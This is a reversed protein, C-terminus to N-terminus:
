ESGFGECRQVGPRQRYTGECSAPLHGRTHNFPLGSRVPGKRDRTGIWDWGATRRSHASSQETNRATDTDEIRLVFTGGTHRAYLWNFLATRVSRYPYIPPARRLDSKPLEDHASFHCRRVRACAAIGRRILLHGTTVPALTHPRGPLALLLTFWTLIFGTYYYTLAKRRAPSTGTSAAIEPFMRWLAVGNSVGRWPPLPPSLLSCHLSINAVM